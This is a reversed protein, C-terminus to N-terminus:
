SLSIGLDSLRRVVFAGEEGEGSSGAAAPAGRPANPDLKGGPVPPAQPVLIKTPDVQPRLWVCAPWIDLGGILMGVDALASPQSNAVASKGGFGYVPRASAAADVVAKKEKKGLGATGANLLDLVLAPPMDPAIAYAAAVAAEAAPGSNAGLLGTFATVCAMLADRTEAFLGLQLMWAALAASDHGKLRECVAAVLDDPADIAVRYAAHLLQVIAERAIGRVVRSTAAPDLQKKVDGAYDTLTFLVVDRLVSAGEESLKKHKGKEDSEVTWCQDWDSPTVCRMGVVRAAIAMVACAAQFAADDFAAAIPALVNSAAVEDMAENLMLQAARASAFTDNSTGLARLDNVVALACRLQAEAQMERFASTALPYAVWVTRLLEEHRAAVAAAAAQIPPAEDDDLAGMIPELMRATYVLKARPPPVVLGLRALVAEVDAPPLKDGNGATLTAVMATPGVPKVKKDKAKEKKKAAATDPVAPASLAYVLSYAFARGAGALGELVRPLASPAAAFEEIQARALERFDCGMPTGRRGGALLIYQAEDSERDPSEVLTHLFHGAVSVSMREAYASANGVAKAQLEHLTGLIAVVGFCTARMAAGIAKGDVLASVHAPAAAGTRSGAGAALAAAMDDDDDVPDPEPQAEVSGAEAEMSAALRTMARVYAECWHVAALTEAPPASEAATAILSLTSVVLSGATEVYVVASSSRDRAADARSLRLPCEPVVICGIDDALVSLQQLRAGITGDCDAVLREHRARAAKAVAAVFWAHPSPLLGGQGRPGGSAVPGAAIEGLANGAALLAAVSPELGCEVALQVERWTVVHDDDTAGPADAAEAEVVAAVASIVEVDLAGDVDSWMGDLLTAELASVFDAAAAAVVRFFRDLWQNVGHAIAPSSSAEATAIRRLAAYKRLRQYCPEVAGEALLARIDEVVSDISVFASALATTAALRRRTVHVRRLADFDSAIVLCSEALNSIDVSAPQLAEIMRSASELAEAARRTDTMQASTWLALHRSLSAVERKTDATLSTIRANQASAPWRSLERTVFDFAGVEVEFDTPVHQAM